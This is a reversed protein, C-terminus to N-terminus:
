KGFLILYCASEQWFKLAEATVTRVRVGAVQWPINLKALDRVLIETAKRDAGFYEDAVQIYGVNYKDKNEQNLKIKKKNELDNNKLKTVVKKNSEAM